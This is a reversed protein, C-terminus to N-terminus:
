SAAELPIQARVRTGAGLESSVDFTGGISEIRQRMSFLGHGAAPEGAFGRGNDQVRLEVIQDRGEIQVHIQTANAHRVINTLAEQLVRYLATAIRGSPEGRLRVDWTLRVSHAAAYDTRLRELLALLPPSSAQTDDHLVSVTERVDNLLETTTASARRLYAHARDPDSEGLREANQLQVSLTTLGHGLSDHLDLAIRVREAAAATSSAKNAYLWSIGVLGFILVFLLVDLYTGFFMDVYSIHQLLHTITAFSAASLLEALCALALGRFGFAFVLRASLTIVLTQPIVQHAPFARTACIGAISLAILWYRRNAAHPIAFIACATAGAILFYAAVSYTTMPFRPVAPVLHALHMAAEGIFALGVITAELSILLRLPEERLRSFM